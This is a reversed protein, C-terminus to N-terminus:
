TVRKQAEAEGAPFHLLTQRAIVPSCLDLPGAAPGASELGHVHQASTVSQGQDLGSDPSGFSPKRSEVFSGVSLGRGLSRLLPAPAPACM